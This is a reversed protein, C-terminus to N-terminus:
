IRIFKLLLPLYKKVVDPREFDHDAQKVIIKKIHRSLQGLSAPPVKDDQGGLILLMKDLPFNINDLGSGYDRNENERFYQNNIMHAKHMKNKSNLWRNFDIERFFDPWNDWNISQRDKYMARVFYYRLLQQQNWAPGFLVVKHIPLDFKTLFDIIVCGALSHGVLIIKKIKPYYKILTKLACNLEQAMKEVTVDTFNGDSLGCGSFDFRWLVMEDKLRDVINKFKMEISTREFGHVFVVAQDSDAPNLLGRLIEKKQNKFEILKIM